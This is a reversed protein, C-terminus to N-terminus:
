LTSLYSEVGRRIENVDEKLKLKERRTMKSRMFNLVVAGGGEGAVGSILKFKQIWHYIEGNKGLKVVPTLPTVLDQSALRLLGNYEESDYVERPKEVSALLVVENYDMYDEFTEKGM